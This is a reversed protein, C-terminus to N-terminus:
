SRIWSRFNLLATNSGGVVQDLLSPRNEVTSPDIAIVKKKLEKKEREFDSNYV